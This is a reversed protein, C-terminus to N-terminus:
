DDGALVSLVRDRKSHRKRRYARVEELLAVYDVPQEIKLPQDSSESMVPMNFAETVPALEVMSLVGRRVLDLLSNQLRLMDYSYNECMDAAVSQVGQLTLQGDVFLIIAAQFSNFTPAVRPGLPAFRDTPSGMELHILIRQVPDHEPIESIAVRIRERQDDYLRAAEMIEEIASADVNRACLDAYLRYILGDMEADDGFCTEQPVTGIRARSELLVPLKYGLQDRVARFRGMLMNRLNPKLTLHDVEVGDLRLKKLLVKRM